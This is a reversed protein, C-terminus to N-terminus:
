ALYGRARGTRHLWQSVTENDRRESLWQARLAAIAETFERAGDTTM